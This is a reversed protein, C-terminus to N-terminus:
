LGMFEKVDAVSRAIFGLGGMSNVKKLFAQQSVSVVGKPSKVEIALMRGGPLIGIIDSTGKLTFKGTKRYIKKDADWVGVTNVKFAFINNKNLYDLILNETDKENVNNEM